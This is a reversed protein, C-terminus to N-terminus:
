VVFQLQMRGFQVIDGSEIYTAGTVPRGNVFTGNTSGLDSVYWAGNRSEIGAHVGSLAPEDIVVTCDPHRGFTNKASLTISAGAAFISDAPEVVILKARSRQRKPQTEVSQQIDRMTIRLVQWLFLYLIGVFALRLLM